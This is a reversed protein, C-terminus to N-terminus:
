LLRVKLVRFGEELLRNQSELFVDVVLIFLGELFVLLIVLNQVLSEVRQILGILHLFLVQVAQLAFEFQDVRQAGDREHIQGLKVQLVSRRRLIHFFAQEEQMQRESLQALYSGIQLLPHRQSVYEVEVVGVILVLENRNQNATQRHHGRHLLVVLHDSESHEPFYLVVDIVVLQTIVCHKVEVSESLIQGLYSVQLLALFQDPLGELDLSEELRM